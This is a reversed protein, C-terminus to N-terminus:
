GDSLLQHSVDSTRESFISRNSGTMKWQEFVWISFEFKPPLCTIGLYLIENVDSIIANFDPLRVPVIAQNKQIKNGKFPEQRSLTQFVMTEFRIYFCSNM